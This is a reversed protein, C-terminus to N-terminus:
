KMIKVLEYNMSYMSCYKTIETSGLLTLLNTASATFMEIFIFEIHSDNKSDPPSLPLKLTTERQGMVRSETDM